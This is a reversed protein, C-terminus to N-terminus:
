TDKKSVRYDHYNKIFSKDFKSIFKTGRSTYIIVHGRRLYQVAQEPTISQKNEIYSDFAIMLLFCNVRSGPPVPVKDDPLPQYFQVPTPMITMNNIYFYIHSLRFDISGTNVISVNIYREHTHMAIMSSITIKAKERRSHIAFWLSIVVSGITGIAVFISVILQALQYDMEVEWHIIIGFHM